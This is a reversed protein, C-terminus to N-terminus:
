SNISTSLVVLILLENILLFDNACGNLWANKINNASFDKRLVLSVKVKFQHVKTATSFLFSNSENYHLSLCFKRNSRSFNLLYQAEVTLTSDSLGQTPDKGFILINKIIILIFLHAWIFELFLSMKVWEVKLYHVNQVRISDLVM